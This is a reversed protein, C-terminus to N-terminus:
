VLPQNFDYTDMRSLPYSRGHGSVDHVLQYLLIGGVVDVVQVEVDEGTGVRTGAEYLM